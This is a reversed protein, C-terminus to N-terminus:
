TDGEALRRDYVIIINTCVVQTDVKHKVGIHLMSGYIKMKAHSLTANSLQLHWMVRKLILKCIGQCLCSRWNQDIIPTELPFVIKHRCTLSSNLGGLSTGSDYGDRVIVVFWHVIRELVLLLALLNCWLKVWLGKWLFCTLWMKITFDRLNKM